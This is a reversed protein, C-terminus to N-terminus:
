QFPNVLSFPDRGALYNIFVAANLAAVKAALRTLLGWATRARPFHLGFTGVLLSHVTEVVQRAAHYRHQRSRQGLLAPDRTTCLTVQYCDQWHQQWRSGTCGGDTLLFSGQTVGAAWRGQIPGTPGVRDARHRRGLVARLDETTPLPATPDTRWRLLTEVLWRDQTSAPGVVWGSVTGEPTAANLQACGYYWARDSGGSGVAAEDGFLRHREGRCRRMLPVPVADVVEYSPDRGLYDHLQRDLEPGLRCLVGALDRVRRNFATQTLMQPFYARWHRRVWRAFGRESRDPRWQALLALTLVESDSLRPPPGPRRPKQAAFQAQYLDDVLCYLTTLFTDPDMEM